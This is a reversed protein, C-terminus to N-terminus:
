IYTIKMRKGKLNFCCGRQAPSIQFRLKNLRRNPRGDVSIRRSFPAKRFREDFRVLKFVSAKTKTHASVMQRLDPKGCVCIWNRRVAPCLVYAM